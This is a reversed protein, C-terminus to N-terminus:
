HNFLDLKASATIAVIAPHRLKREVSIAFYRERLHEIRGIPQVGYQNTVEREIASPSPFVGGGAQGFVKMLASDDFEGTISPQIGQEDLWRDIIRRMATSPTPLLMPHGSLSAPFNRKLKKAIDGRAFFTLGCEGLKHNFAKVSSSSDLPTDSLVLDLRHVALDALLDDRKGERCIIRPREAMRFAPQLLRFVILKPLEDPVGVIFRHAEGAVGRVTRQLEEGRAFIDDAYSLVTLGFETLSLRRGSQLFLKNGLSRELSRLQGTVTPRSLQLKGAAATVSGEHAVTWFYFLHHYNLWKM